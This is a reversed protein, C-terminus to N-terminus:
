AMRAEENRLANNLSRESMLSANEGDGDGGGNAM